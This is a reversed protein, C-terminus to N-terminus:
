KLRVPISVVLGAFRNTQPTKSFFATHCSVCNAGLPIAGARRYVGDEVLEFESKGGAIAKAAQKEFATKPEHHISMAKTNVSIWAARIRSSREVDAVIDEMARAPLVARDRRFFHEHMTDLTAAYVHHLLKARERAEAVNPLKGSVTGDPPDQSRAFSAVLGAAVVVVALSCWRLTTQM